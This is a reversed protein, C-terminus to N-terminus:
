PVSLNAWEKGSNVERSDAKLKGEAGLDVDDVRQVRQHRRHQGAAVIGGMSFVDVERRVGKRCGGGASRRRRRRPDGDSRRHRTSHRDFGKCTRHTAAM